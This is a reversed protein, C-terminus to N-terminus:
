TPLYVRKHASSTETFQSLPDLPKGGREILLNLVGSSIKKQPQLLAWLLITVEEDEDVEPIVRWTVTHDHYFGIDLLAQLIKTSRPFRSLARIIVPQSAAQVSTVDMKGPGDGHETFLVILEYVEDESLAADFIRPFALTLSEPDPKEDLMKRLLEPKGQSAAVQVAEGHNHNVDAGHQLLLSVFDDAIQSPATHYTRLVAVFASGVCAGGSGKQLLCQAIEYGRESLWSDLADPSFAQNFVASADEPSIKPELLERFVPAPLTRAADVLTQCGNAVASARNDMLLRILSEDPQEENVARNLSSHVASPVPKGARFIWGAITLRTDRSLDWCADLAQVLTHSSPKKQRGGVDVIGLLLRLNDLFASRTAKQVAEGDNYDPSAGYSLLLKVLDSADDGYRVASVLQVDVAEGTVGVQLLLEFVKTRRKLDGLQTAAQFGRQLTQQTAQTSGALLMELVDIAGLQCAEVIAQGDRHEVSGGNRVLVTGFDLDREAAAALLADAVVPGSAGAKLLSHCSISRTRKNKAAHMFGNNLIDVPFSKQRLILEVVDQREKNIAELLALGDETNAFTLLANILPIDDPYMRVAFVLARNVESPPIGGHLIKQAFTLRDMPDRIHLAHPMAFALAMPAPSATFLIDVLQMNVAAVAQCLAEGNCANVDAGNALLAKISTFTREQSRSKAIRSVEQILAGTVANRSPVRRLLSSLKASKDSSIPLTVLSRLGRDLSDKNPQGVVLILELIDLNPHQVAHEVAIGGNHNVDANGQQLLTKLLRKDTPRVLVATDLAESMEDGGQGAGAEILVSIMQLRVAQDDVEMARPVAKAAMQITPKNQLLHGLLPLDRQSIATTISHGENFNVDANYRLLLAILKENRHPPQEEVASELASNVSPGSLGARLFMETIQLRERPHLGQTSPFIQSLALPTPPKNSLILSAIATNGEKVAIQLALAGKHDTSATEHREFVMSGPGRKHNPKGVIKGGPFLPTLLLRAAGADGAETADVLAEDLPPGSAGKRLLLSLFAYREEFRLNKPLLEVCESAYLPSFTSKGKLMVEVLDIKGRSVAKRVALADQHEISAGYSVLLSVMELFYKASAQVLAQSILDGGAGACLLIEAMAMKDNPNINQHGM